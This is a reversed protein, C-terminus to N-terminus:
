PARRRALLAAWFGLFVFVCAMIIAPRRWDHSELWAGTALFGGWLVVAIMILAILRRRGAAASGPESGAQETPANDHKAPGYPNHSM